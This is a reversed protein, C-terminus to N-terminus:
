GDGAQRGCLLCRWAPTSAGRGFFWRALCVPCRQRLMLSFDSPSHIRPFRGERPFGPFAERTGGELIGRIAAVVCAHVVAVFQMAHSIFFMSSSPAHGGKFFPRASVSVPVFPFYRRRAKRGTVCACLWRDPFFAIFFLSRLLRNPGSSLCSLGDRVLVQHGTGRWPLIVKAEHGCRCRRGDIVKEM